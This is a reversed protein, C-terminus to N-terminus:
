PQPTNVWLTVFHEIGAYVQVAGYDEWHETDYWYYAPVLGPFLVEGENDTWKNGIYNKAKLNEYSTALFVQEGVILGGNTDMVRVVLLGDTADETSCSPLMVGSAIILFSSLVIVWKKM